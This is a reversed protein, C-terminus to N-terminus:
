SAPGASEDGYGLMGELRRRGVVTVLADKGMSVPGQASFPDGWYGGSSALVRLFAGARERLRADGRHICSRDELLKAMRDYKRANEEFKWGDPGADALRHQHAAIERAVDSRFRYVDAAVGLSRRIQRLPGHADRMLSANSGHRRYLALVDALLLTCGLANAQLNTWKDHTLVGDRAHFSRPRNTSDLNRLITGRVLKAMGPHVSFGLLGNRPVQRTAAIGPFRGERRQLSEDVIQCDHVIMTLPSPGAHRRVAKDLRALKEPLWVDDQDCFAIWDGETRRATQLFNDAYGLRKSNRHLRVPFPASKAFTQLIELTADTSGDDGVVVEDPLRRQDVLSELQDPLFRAGNCTALAVSIKM